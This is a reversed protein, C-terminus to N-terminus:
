HATRQLCHTCRAEHDAIVAGGANELLLRGGDNHISTHNALNTLVNLVDFMSANDPLVAPALDLMRVLSRDPVGQERAIARLAREPNVVPTNRLDYFHAIQAEVRSFAVEAAAEIEALVGEVSLGRADVKLGSDITTMGNTCILRMMWPQVSPALNHKRDYNFRLGAATLDGVKSTPTIGSKSVWSYRLLDESLDMDVESDGGVGRNSNIPVHVDFAFEASTDVLRQIPAQDTGLVREAIGILRSPNIVEKGPDSIGVLGGDTYEARVTAGSSHNMLATLLYAQADLGVDKGLRKFFPAPIGLHDGIANMGTESVPVSVDGLNIHPDNAKVDVRVRDLSLDVSNHGVNERNRRDRLDALTMDLDPRLAIAATM